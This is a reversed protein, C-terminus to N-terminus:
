EGRDTARASLTDFAKVALVLGAMVAHAVVYIMVARVPWPGLIRFIPVTEPPVDGIFMYNWGTRINLPLVAAFLLTNVAAAKTLDAWGPRLGTALFYVGAGVIFAHQVWYFWFALSSAGQELTPQIFAQSSLGLGWFVILCRALRGGPARIPLLMAVPVLLGAIDCLHLPLSESLDRRHPELWYLVMLLQSMLALGALFTRLRVEREGGRWRRGLVSALAILGLCLGSCVAHQATYPTFSNFWTPLTTAGTEETEVPSTAAVAAPKRSEPSVGIGRFTGTQASTATV